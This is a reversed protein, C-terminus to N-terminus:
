PVLVAGGTDSAPPTTAAVTGTATDAMVPDVTVATDTAAADATAPDAVAADALVPTEPTFPPPVYYESGLAIEGGRIREAAAEADAASPTLYRVTGPEPVVLGLSAAVRQLRENSLGAAIQAQLASNERKLQDALGATQSSSANFSLTMVNVGVIGVLLTALLGIWLRSRTLRLVVGSDAVGGVAVATRGVAVPVLRFPGSPAAARARPRTASIPARRTAPRSTHATRSASRRPAPRTARRPTAVAARAVPKRVTAAAPM